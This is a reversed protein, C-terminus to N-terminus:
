PCLFFELANSTNTGKPAPPDRYWAQLQYVDLEALPQGLALPHAAWYANLDVTVSGNCLQVNGGSNYAGTRQQPQKVCMFSTSGTSTWPWAVRGTIGYFIVSSRQGEIGDCTVNFGSSQTASPTGATTILATCGNSSTGATCYNVLGASCAGCTWIRLKWSVLTGSNSNADDYVDLTWTGNPNQGTCSDMSGEPQAQLVVVNNAYTTDTVPNPADEDFWTGNFCNDNFSGNDTTITIATGGPSTLTIDLDGSSTHLIELYLAVRAITNGIGTIVMSDLTSNQDTIPLNSTKAFTLPFTPPNSPLSFIDLKWSSMSGTNSAVDDTVELTWIGNPNEGRFATLSGEPNMPSALVGNSYVWDSCAASVSSDDWVTGNFVDDNTGGNDTTLTARTGAPSVLYIDLDWCATHTIFTTVDVDWLSPAAGSVAIMFQTTANDAIPGGAATFSQATPTFGPCVPTM